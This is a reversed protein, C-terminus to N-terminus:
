AAGAALGAGAAASPSSLEISHHARYEHLNALCLLLELLRTRELADTVGSDKDLARAAFDGQSLLWDFAGPEVPSGEHCLKFAAEVRLFVL